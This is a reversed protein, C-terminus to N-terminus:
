ARGVTLYREDNPGGLNNRAWENADDVAQALGAGTTLISHEIREATHNIITVEYLAENPAPRNNAMVDLREYIMRLAKLLMEHQRSSTGTLLTPFPEEAM